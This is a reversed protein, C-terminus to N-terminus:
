RLPDKRRAPRARWTPPGARGRLAIDSKPANRLNRNQSCTDSARRFIDVCHRALAPRTSDTSRRNERCTTTLGSRSGACACGTTPRSITRRAGGSRVAQRIGCSCNTPLSPDSDPRAPYRCCWSTRTSRRYRPRFRWIERWPRPRIWLTRALAQDDIQVGRDAGDAAREFFGLADGVNRHFGGHDPTAPLWTRPTFLRPPM